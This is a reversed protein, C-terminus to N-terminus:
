LLCYDVDIPTLSWKEVVIEIPILLPEGGGKKSRSHKKEDDLFWIIGLTYCLLSKFISLVTFNWKSFYNKLYQMQILQAYILLIYKLFLYFSLNWLNKVSQFLLIVKKRRFPIKKWRKLMNWTQLILTKLERSSNKIAKRKNM